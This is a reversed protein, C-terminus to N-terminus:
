QFLLILTLFSFSEENQLGAGPLSLHFDRPFLAYALSFIVEVLPFSPSSISWLENELVELRANKKQTHHSRQSLLPSLPFIDGNCKLSQQVSYVAPIFFPSVQFGDTILNFFFSCPICCDAAQLGNTYLRIQFLKM